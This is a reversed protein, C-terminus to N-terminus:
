AFWGDAALEGGNRPVYQDFYVRAVLERRSAVGAKEFVSKLHDQVTYPSLHLAAAIERTDSGRLVLAVVERERLTLGFAAAVLDIVEQPRAEEITVVVDGAREGIGGLPAARLVLWVGDSARLRIRPVGEVEGRAFRRAWSVLAQVTTLPDGTNPVDSMRALQVDAGHSSQVIRDQADFIVVAPGIASRAGRTSVDALLGTRIGRTFAPAVTRLFEVDAATFPADDTGRFISIAGWAGTRDAFVVRAEDRFGFHPLMLRSMRVSREVDGAMADHVSAAVRGSVLIATMATPDDAGYEIQAWQVDADNSGELADFKRTSSVLATAPDMTSLCAGVFPVAKQVATTAEDMFTTLPLGARSIVDIDSRARDLAMGSAM